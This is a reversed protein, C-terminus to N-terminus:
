FKLGQKRAAEALAKIRGHYKYSGRDFAVTIVQAKLAKTAIIEGARTANKDSSAALTLSKQDDIIQAYVYKGSRFVSLRPRASVAKLKRRTRHARIQKM